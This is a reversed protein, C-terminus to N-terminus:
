PPHLLCFLFKDHHFKDKSKTLVIKNTTKNAQASLSKSFTLLSKVGGATHLCKKLKNNNNIKREQKVGTRRGIWNKQPIQVLIIQMSISRKWRLCHFNLKFYGGSDAEKAPRCSIPQCNLLSSGKPCEWALLRLSYNFSYLCLKALFQSAAGTPSHLLAIM